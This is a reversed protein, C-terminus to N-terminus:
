DKVRKLIEEKTKEFAFHRNQIRSIYRILIRALFFYITATVILPFFADYTRSRIIDTARTLDQVTVYGVVSTSKVLSVIEGQYSSMVIKLAQPLVFKYLAENESYGLALAGEMQGKDIADVGSKLLGFVSSCMVISFGIISIIIGSTKSKAFVVYFLIMLLVVIPLGNVIYENFDLFKKIFTYAKRYILYLIFGAITGMIASIATILLTTLTGDLIIKWRDEEIFTAYFKNTIVDIFDDSTEVEPNRIILLGSAKYIPDSFNVQKKREESVTIVSYAVDYRGSVISPIITDFNGQTLEISYGYEYAFRELLETEYGQPENNSLFSFPQSELSSIVKISGNEGTLNYKEKKQERGTGNTPNWKKDLEDMYGSKWCKDLFENFQKRLEEKEDSFIFGVDYKVVPEDIYALSPDDNVLTYVVMDDTIFADIKHTKLAMVQESLSSLLEVECNEINEKLPEYFISGILGGIKHGSLDSLHEFTTTEQAASCGTFLLLTALLSIVRKM